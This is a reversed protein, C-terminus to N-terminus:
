RQHLRSKLWALEQRFSSRRLGLSLEHLIRLFVSGPTVYPIRGRKVPPPIKAPVSNEKPEAAAVSEVWGNQLMLAVPRTLSSTKYGALSNQATVFFRWSQEMFLKQRDAQEYRAAHYFVVSKRLEQAAWTENPYELMDPKELYPYENLRMWEAYALLCSRAYSFRTDFEDLAHKKDLFKAVAALLVTYSWAVEPNLLGRSDIDDYPHVAGHILQWAHEMFRDGGGVEFADLCASAANGTGRTLPYRPFLRKDGGAQWLLRFYRPVRKVAALVTGSGKLSRLVWDALDIVAQRFDPNGTQYYHLMLGTTYCHEAAPGGGCFRPDKKKLHESSFSRHTSLGADIYHDTHWFLGRNYEERDRSTHYIDIDLVHRSLDSALECWRPDGTVFSKRYFGACIDYQNNYHSIFPLEGEHNVAEHDAYVDGFNRWGYEDPVERKKLFDDPGSIFSDTLDAAGAAPLDSFIGSLRYVEPSALVSLPSRAWDLGDPSAAFDLYVTHTKQEGGQLEHYVPHCGPFLSIKMDSRGAEIAKPFEQWFRPLVAAVGTEKSGCWVVPAAREGAADLKNDKRIEYGKFTFPVKGNRTRHNPSQWNDGGSSEQYISFCGSPTNCAVPPGGREPSCIIKDVLGDAFDLEFALERFILSAPDGLDWLGGPHNASKPNLVTFENIVCSTGAFFHLRCSFRPATKDTTGFRGHIRIIATLPGEIELSISDVVPVLMSKDSIKLICACSKIIERNDVRVQVFPKFERVDISFVTTGTDVHWIEDGTRIRIGPPLVPNENEGSVLRYVSAGNATVSAAFDAILWQVSGDIWRKLVTTQVPQLRGDPAAILLGEPGALEGKACPVGVRVMEGTRALGITESVIIEKDLM